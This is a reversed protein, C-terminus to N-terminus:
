SCGDLCSPARLPLMELRVVEIEGDEVFFGIQGGPRVMTIASILVRGDVSVEVYPGYAVVQVEVTEGWAQDSTWEQVVRRGRWRYTVGACPTKHFPQLVYLQVRKLSPTLSVYTADDSGRARLMVGFEPADLRKIRAKLLVSGQERNLLFAGVGVGAPASGRLGTEGAGWVGQVAGGQAALGAGEFVEGAGQAVADWADFTRLFLAGDPDADAVKAPSLATINRGGGGEWDAVGRLHSFYLTKEGLTVPKFVQNNVPLLEGHGMRRYPGTVQDAVRYISVPAGASDKGAIGTLYYRGKVKAIALTEFDYLAGPVALPPKVEWKYGDTSVMYGVCGRRGEPGRNTRATVLGHLVGDEAFVWPDRWDIRSKDGVTAHYWRGDAEAVPGDGHRTWTFLDDSVALGVRQAKGREKMALGTYLMFFRGQHKFVGMTWIQDDDFAGPDGTHLAAPEEKWNLGDHSTLHGVRDHSPIALYFAHFVGEHAIVDIDGM